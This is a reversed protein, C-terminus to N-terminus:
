DLGLADVTPADVVGTVDLGIDRQYAAITERTASSLSGTLEGSYYGLQQLARQVNIIVQDPLLNGYTYIPGDYDYYENDSDYGWAPYWYGANWYYYGGGVLVITTFHERWWTRNHRQHRYRRLADSYSLLKAPTPPATASVTPTQAAIQQRVQRHVRAPTATARAAAGKGSSADQAEALQSVLAVFCIPWAVPLKM